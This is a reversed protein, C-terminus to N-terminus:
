RSRRRFDERARLRKAADCFAQRARRLRSSVTGVPLEMLEAIQPATMEELEYMVFVVRLELDLEDLVQDLRRRTHQRDLADEPGPAPDTHRAADGDLHEHRRPARRRHAAAVRFATGFLFARESGVAIDDLRRV